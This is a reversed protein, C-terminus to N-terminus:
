KTEITSSPWRRSSTSTRTCRYRTEIDIQKLWAGNGLLGSAIDLAIAATIAEAGKAAPKRPRAM